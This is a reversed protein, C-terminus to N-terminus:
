NLLDILIAIIFLMPYIKCLLPSLSSIMLEQGNLYQAIDSNYFSKSMNVVGNPITPLDFDRIIYNNTGYFINSIDRASSPIFDKPFNTFNTLAFMGSLNEANNSIIKFEGGTWKDWFNNEPGPRQAYAYAMNTVSDPINFGNGSSAISELTMSSGWKPQAFLAYVSSINNPFRIGNIQMNCNNQSDGYSEDFLKDDRWGFMGDINEVSDPINIVFKGDGSKRGGFLYSADKM